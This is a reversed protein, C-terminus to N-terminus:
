RWITNHACWSLCIVWRTFKLVSNDPNPYIEGDITFYKTVLADSSEVVAIISSEASVEAGDITDSIM